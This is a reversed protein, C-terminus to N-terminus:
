NSVTLSALGYPELAAYPREYNSSLIALRIPPCLQTNSVCEKSRITNDPKECIAEFTKVLTNNFNLLTTVLKFSEELNKINWLSFCRRQVLRLDIKLNDFFKILNLHWKEFHLGMERELGKCNKVYLSQDVRDNKEFLDHMVTMWLANNMGTLENLLFQRGSDLAAM